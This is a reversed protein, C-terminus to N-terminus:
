KIKQEKKLSKELATEIALPLKNMDRRHHEKFREFDMKVLNEIVWVVYEEFSDFSLGESSPYTELGEQYRDWGIEFNTYIWNPFELCLRKKSEMKLDGGVVV